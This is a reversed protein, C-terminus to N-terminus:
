PSRICVPRIHRDLWRLFSFITRIKKRPSHTLFVRGYERCKSLPPFLIDVCTKHKSFPRAIRPHRRAITKAGPGPTSSHVIYPEYERNEVCELVLSTEAPAPELFLTQRLRCSGKPNKTGATPSKFHIPSITSPYIFSSRKASNGVESSQQQPQTGTSEKQEPQHIYLVVSISKLM